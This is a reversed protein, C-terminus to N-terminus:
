RANYVSYVGHTVVLEAHTQRLIEANTDTVEEVADTDDVGVPLMKIVASAMIVGFEECILLIDQYDWLSQIKMLRTDNVSSPRHQEFLETAYMILTQMLEEFDGDGLTNKTTTSVNEYYRQARALAMGQRLSCKASVFRAYNNMQQKITLTSLGSEKNLRGEVLPMDLEDILSDCLGKVIDLCHFTFEDTLWLRLPDQGGPM